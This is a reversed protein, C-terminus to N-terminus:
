GTRRTGTTRSGDRSCTSRRSASMNGVGIIYSRAVPSLAAINWTSIDNWVPFLSQINSPIPGGQADLIGM